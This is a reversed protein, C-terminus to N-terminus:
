SERKMWKRLAILVELKHLSLKVRKCIIPDSSTRDLWSFSGYRAVFARTWGAVRKCERSTSRAKVRQGIM